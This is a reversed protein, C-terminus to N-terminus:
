SGEDFEDLLAQYHHHLRQIMTPIPEEAAEAMEKLQPLIDHLFQTMWQRKAWGNKAARILVRDLAKTITTLLVPHDAFFSDALFQGINSMIADMKAGCVAVFTPTEVVFRCGWEENCLLPV